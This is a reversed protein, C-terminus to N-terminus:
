GASGRGADPSPTSGDAGTDSNATPEAGRGDARSGMRRIWRQTSKLKEQGDIVIKDGPNVGRKLIVQTGETLDVEVNQVDVYFPPRKPAGAEAEPSPGQAERGTARRM